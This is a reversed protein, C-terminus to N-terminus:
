RFISRIRNWLSRGPSSRSTSARPGYYGGAHTPCAITAFREILDLPQETAVSMGAAQCGPTALQGSLRCLQIRSTPVPPTPDEAKYDLKETAKM